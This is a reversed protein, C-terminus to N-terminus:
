FLLSLVNAVVIEGTEQMGLTQRRALVSVDANAGGDNSVAGSIMLSALQTSIFKAAGKIKSPRFGLTRGEEKGTGYRKM